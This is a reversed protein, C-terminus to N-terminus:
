GFGYKFNSKGRLSRLVVLDPFVHAFHLHKARFWGKFLLSHQFSSRNSIMLRTFLWLPLNTYTVM